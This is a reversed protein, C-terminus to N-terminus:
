YSVTTNKLTIRAMFGASSDYKIKATGPVVIKAPGGVNIPYATFLVKPFEFKLSFNQATEIEPGTFTIEWARTTYSSFDDWQVADHVLFSAAMTGTRFDDGIIKAVVDTNNLLPIAALGSELTFGLTELNGEAVTAIKIISQSWKFPDTTELVPSTKTLKALSKGLWSTTLGLVKEGVGFAFALTNAVMGSLQFANASGIDRFVELTYPRGTCDDSFDTDSPTFVHQYALTGPHTTVPDGFWSRLIMGLYEPHVQHVTNGALSKLGSISQPEDRRGSISSRILEEIALNLTESTFKLYNTAAVPTGWETEKGIGIHTRTGQAPM